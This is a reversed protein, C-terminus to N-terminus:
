PKRLADVKAQVEQISSQLQQKLAPRIRLAQAYDAAAAEYDRVAGKPDGAQEHRHAREQRLKGRNIWADEFRDWLEIASTEDAEASTLDPVPDGGTKALHFARRFKLDARLHFYFAKDGDTEMARTYDQEAREFRERPDEGRQIQDGAQRTRVEGLRRWCSPSAPNLRVAETLAAEAASWDPRPDKGAAALYGARNGHIV